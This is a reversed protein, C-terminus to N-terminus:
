RYVFKCVLLVSALLLTVANALIVPWAALLIGYTLWLGVGATFLVVMLLSLDRSSKTRVTRAVQPVFSVTTLLGALLGIAQAMDM